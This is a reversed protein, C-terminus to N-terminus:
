ATAIFTLTNDTSASVVPDGNLDLVKIDSCFGSDNLQKIQNSLSIFYIMTAYEHFVDNIISYEPGRLDFKRNRGRNVASKFTMQVFRTSRVALRIPNWTWHFYPWNFPRQACHNASDQNYTSFIFVGGPKLVRRVERLIALRGQHDVMCIGECFFTVVDFSQDPFDSLDRADCHRFDVGPFKNKCVAVMAQSYDIGVYRDSLELLPAVTRGGGVGLDLISAGSVREKVLDLAAREAAKLGEWRAYHAVSEIRGMTRKNVVDVINTEVIAANNNSDLM